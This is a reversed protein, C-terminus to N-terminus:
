IRGNQQTGSGVTANDYSRIIRLVGRVKYSRTIRLVPNDTNSGVTTVRDHLMRGLKDYDYSHATGRQDEMTHM